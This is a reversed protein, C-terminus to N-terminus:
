CKRKFSVGSRLVIRILLNSWRSMFVRELLAKILILMSCFSTLTIELYFVYMTMTLTDVMCLGICFRAVTAGM